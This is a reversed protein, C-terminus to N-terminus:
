EPLGAQRLADIYRAADVSGRFPVIGKLNSARLDRDIKVVRAMYSRAKEIQGALGYSAAGMRLAAVVPCTSSQCLTESLMNGNPVQTLTVLAPKPKVGREPGRPCSTTVSYGRRYTGAFCCPPRLMHVHLPFPLGAAEGAREIMRGIGM